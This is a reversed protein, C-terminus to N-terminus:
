KRDKLKIDSKVEGEVTGDDNRKIDVNVGSGNDEQAAKNDNVNDQAAPTQDSQMNGHDDANNCAVSLMIMMCGAMFFKVIKM